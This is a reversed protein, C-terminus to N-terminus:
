KASPTPFLDRIREIVADGSTSVAADEPAGKAVGVVHESAWTMEGKQEIFKEKPARCQPCKEPAEDGEHVYGCISCVFKAM